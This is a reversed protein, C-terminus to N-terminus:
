RNLPMGAVVPTEQKQQASGLLLSGVVAISYLALWVNATCAARELSCTNDTREDAAAAQRVGAIPVAM